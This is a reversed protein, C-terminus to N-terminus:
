CGRLGAGPDPRPGRRSLHLASGDGALLALLYRGGDAGSAQSGDGAPRTRLGDGLDPETRDGGQPRGAAEGQGPAQANQQAIAPGDRPVRSLDEESQDALGGPTAS